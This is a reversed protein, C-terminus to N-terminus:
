WDTVQDAIHDRGSRDVPASTGAAFVQEEPFYPDAAGVGILPRWDMKRRSSSLAQLGDARPM